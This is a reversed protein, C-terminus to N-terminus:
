DKIYDRLNIKPNWNLIEKALNSVCLTDQAEGKREEKYAPSIGCSKVILAVPM